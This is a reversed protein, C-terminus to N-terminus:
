ALARRQRFGIEEGILCGLGGQVHGSDTQGFLEGACREDDSRNRGTPAAGFHTTRFGRAAGTLTGLHDVM